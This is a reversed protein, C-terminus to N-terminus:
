ATTTMGIFWKEASDPPTASDTSIIGTVLRVVSSITLSTGVVRRSPASASPQGRQRAVRWITSGVASGPTSAPTMSATARTAPSVAGRRNVANPLRKQNSPTRWGTAPNGSCIKV